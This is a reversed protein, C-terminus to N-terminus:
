EKKDIVLTIMAFVYEIKVRIVGNVTHFYITMEIVKYHRLSDCRM